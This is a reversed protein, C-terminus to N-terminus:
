FAYRKPVNAPAPQGQNKGHWRGPSGEIALVGLFVRGSGTRRCEFERVELKAQTSLMSM